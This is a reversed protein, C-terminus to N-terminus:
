QNLTDQLKALLERAEDTHLLMQGFKDNRQVYIAVGSKEDNCYGAAVRNPGTQAPQDPVVIGM